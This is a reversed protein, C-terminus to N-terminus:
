INFEKRLLIKSHGPYVEHIDQFNGSYEAKSVQIFGAKVYSKLAAHNEGSLQIEAGPLDPYLSKFHQLVSEILQGALGKGRCDPQVFISELQLYGPSRNLQLQRLRVLREQAETRQTDSIFHYVLTSMLLASSQGSENEIWASLGASPTASAELLWFQSLCWEQGAIDEQLIELVIESFAKEPINFLACWPIPGSAGREAELIGQAVFHLDALGAQRISYLMDM